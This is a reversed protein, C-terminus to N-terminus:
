DYVGYVESELGPLSRQWTRALMGGAQSGAELDGDRPPVCGPPPAAEESWHLCVALVPKRQLRWSVRRLGVHGLFAGGTSNLGLM